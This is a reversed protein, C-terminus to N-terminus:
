QVWVVSIAVNLTANYVNGELYTSNMSTEIAADSLDKCLLLASQSTSKLREDGAAEDSKELRVAKGSESARRLIHHSHKQWWCAHHLVRMSCAPASENERLCPEGQALVARRSQSAYTVSLAEDYHSPLAEAVLL